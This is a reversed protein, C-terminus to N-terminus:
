LLQKNFLFKGCLCFPEFHVIILVFKEPYLFDLELVTKEIVSTNRKKLMIPLLRIEM